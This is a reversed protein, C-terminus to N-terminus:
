ASALLLSSRVSHYETCLASRVGYMRQVRGRVGHKESLEDRLVRLQTCLVGEETYVEFPWVVNVSRFHVIFVPISYETTWLLIRTQKGM